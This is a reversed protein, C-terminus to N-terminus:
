EKRQWQINAEEMWNNVKEKDVLKKLCDSCLDVILAKNVPIDQPYFYGRFVQEKENKCKDCLIM